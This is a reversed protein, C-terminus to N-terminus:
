LLSFCLTTNNADQFISVRSISYGIQYNERSGVVTTHRLKKKELSLKRSTQCLMFLPMASDVVDFANKNSIQRDAHIGM